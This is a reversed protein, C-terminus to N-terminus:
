EPRVLYYVKDGTGVHCSRSVPLFFLRSEARSAGARGSQDVCVFVSWSRRTERKRENGKWKGEWGKGEVVQEVEVREKVKWLM